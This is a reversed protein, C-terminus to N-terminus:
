CLSCSKATLIHRGLWKWLRIRVPLFETRQEKLGKVLADLLAQVNMVFEQTKDMTIKSHMRAKTIGQILSALNEANGESADIKFAM